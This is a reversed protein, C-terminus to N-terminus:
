QVRMNASRMKMNELLRRRLDFIMDKHPSVHEQNFVRNKEEREQQKNMQFLKNDVLPPPANAGRMQASPSSLTTKLPREIRKLLYKLSYPRKHREVTVVIEDGKNLTSIKDFIDLRSRLEKTELGCISTIIDNKELGVVSSIKHPDIAGVKVGIPNGEQFMTTLRLTEIFEGLSSIEQKFEDPDVEYTTDDIKKVVLQWREQPPTNLVNEEKRLYVVEQQGNSRLIVIRNRAIKIIQGDKIKDSNHYLEEKNTEDAIIAVSQAELSSLIIGKLTINLPPLFTPKSPAPPPPPPTSQLQPIPTVLNKQEAQYRPIIVTDFLDNQYIKELNVALPQRKQETEFTVAIPKMKPPSKKLVTSLVIALILLSLLWSNLM